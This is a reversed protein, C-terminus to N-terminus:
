VNKVDARPINSPYPELKPQKLGKLSAPHTAIGIHVSQFCVNRLMEEVLVEAGGDHLM